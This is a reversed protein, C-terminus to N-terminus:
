KQPHKRIKAMQATMMQRLQSLVDLICVREQWTASVHMLLNNEQGEIPIVFDNEDLPVHRYDVKDQIESAKRIAKPFRKFFVTDDFDKVPCGLILLWANDEATYKGKRQELARRISHLFFNYKLNRYIAKHSGFSNLEDDDEDSLPEDSSRHDEETAHEREKNVLMFEKEAVKLVEEALLSSANVFPSEHQMAMEAPQLEELLDSALLSEIERQELFVNGGGNVFDEKDDAEFSEYWRDEEDLYQLLRNIENALWVICDMCNRRLSDNVNSLTSSLAKTEFVEVRRKVNEDESGFKPLDNTTIYFPAKNVLTKPSQHKVCTVMYGGQLVVKALDAQLTNESWEDLFVLETHENMMAASFQKEQTIAAVNTLPIIGFLVQVWSTKGSDKPGCLVLKRIKHPMRGAMLCQYFKNMFRRVSEEPFSNLICERFYLPEPDKEPDFEVFMRPSVKRFDSDFLPTDAFRRESIKFCNGGLVEILDFNRHVRRFLDCSLNSMLKILIQLNRLVGHKLTENSMLKHLCTSPDM